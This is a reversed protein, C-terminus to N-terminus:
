RSSTQLKNLHMTRSQLRRGLSSRAIKPRKISNSGSASLTTLNLRGAEPLYLREVELDASELTQREASLGSRPLQHTQLSATPLREEDM